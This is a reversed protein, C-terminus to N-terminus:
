PWLKRCRRDSTLRVQANPYVNAYTRRRADLLWVGNATHLLAKQRTATVDWHAGDPLDCGSVTLRLSGHLHNARNWDKGGDDQRGQPQGYRNQFARDTDPTGLANWEVDTTFVHFPLARPDDIGTCGPAGECWRQFDDLQATLERESRILGFLGKYRIFSDVAVAARRAPPDRRPDRRIYTQEFALTLVRGQHLLRYLGHADDPELFDVSRETAEESMRVRRSRYVTLTHSAQDVLRSARNVLRSVSDSDTGPRIIVVRHSRAGNTM